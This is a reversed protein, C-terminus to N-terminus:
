VFDENSRGDQWLIDQVEKRDPIVDATGRRTVMLSAAVIGQSIAQTMPLGRDLGALLFGAFTDGAGTTDVVDVPRAPFDLSEGSTANFWHVGRAGRTVIVDEVPLDELLAGTSEAFQVAEIENMILVDIYPLAASLAGEDFPAAVYGNRLDRKQGFQLAELQASTENQVVLVDRPRASLLATRINDVPIALNAGAFLIIQNEGSGDLAIIAEGTAVEVRAVHRTDVGYELLRDAAWIGDVGVAGIHCVHAGARAAAVSINAGKGGLFELKGYALTTEGPQPLDVLEYVLDRNISGLNWIAM